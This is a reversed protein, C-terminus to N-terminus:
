YYIVIVREERRQYAVVERVEEPLSSIDNTDIYKVGLQPVVRGLLQFM